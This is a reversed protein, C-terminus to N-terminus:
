VRWYAVKKQRRPSVDDEWNPDEPHELRWSDKVYHIAMTLADVQDDHKGYPFLVMEEYLENSWSKGEPLWVRGAELMPSASFVRSVKDKDPMYELVPLGSRRMDQILSQGSAKKEV